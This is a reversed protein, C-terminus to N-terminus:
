GRVYQAVAEQRRIENSRCIKAVVDPCYKWAEQYVADKIASYAKKLRNAPLNLVNGIDYGAEKLKVLRDVIRGKNYRAFRPLAIEAMKTWYNRMADRYQEENRRLAGRSCSEGPIEFSDPIELVLQEERAAPALITEVELGGLDSQIQRSQNQGSKKRQQPARSNYAPCVDSIQGIELGLKLQEAM